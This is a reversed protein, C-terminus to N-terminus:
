EAAKDSQQEPATGFDGEPFTFKFTFTTMEEDFQGLRMYDGAQARLADKEILMKRLTEDVERARANFSDIQALFNRISM